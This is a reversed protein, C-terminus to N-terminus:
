CTNYDIIPSKFIGPLCSILHNILLRLDFSPPYLTWISLCLDVFCQVCFVLYQAVNVGIFVPTFEPAGSPYATEAGSTVGTPVQSQYKNTFLLLWGMVFPTNMWHWRHSLGSATPTIMTFIYDIMHLFMFGVSINISLINEM